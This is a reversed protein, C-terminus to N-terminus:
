RPAVSCCGALLRTGVDDRLFLNIDLGYSQDSMGDSCTRRELVAHVAGDQQESILAFRDTRGDARRATVGSFSIETGDQSRFAATAAADIDLRWFPETGFCTMPRPLGTSEDMQQRALYRLAVWGSQEDVNVRGWKGTADLATVEIHKEGPAFSGLRPASGDPEARINLVDGKAVDVVAYLAPLSLSQAMVTAPWAILLGALLAARM